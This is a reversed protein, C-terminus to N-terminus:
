KVAFVLVRASTSGHPPVAVLYEKLEPVLLGTKGLPGTPIKGIAQYHDADIEKFVNVFGEGAAVYVRQSAPDFVMDDVGTSIPLNELVKGTDSDLVNMNGDRCAVFLRHNKEDMAVSVNVKCTLPWVAAIAQKQRDIVGISNKETMNLFLRSGSKEVVMAELRNSDIKIQGVKEGTDTNVIELFTHNLKADLGGDAIYLNHTVPDYGTADSDALLKVTKLLEYTTGNFIKLDGNSGDTVFIRDMDARYVVSHGVGIGKISHVFNGTRIDYVEITKNDEPVVFLRNNKLDATLHDFHNQVGVMRTTTLNKALQDASVDPEGSRIDTLEITKVLKLPPTNEAFVFARPATWAAIALTAVWFFYRQYSRMLGVWVGKLVRCILRAAIGFRTESLAGCNVSSLVAQPVRVQSAGVM